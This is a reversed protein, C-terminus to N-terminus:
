IWGEPDTPDDETDRYGIIDVATIPLLIGTPASVFEFTCQLRLTAEYIVESTGWPTGPSSGYGGMEIQEWLPQLAVLSNEQIRRRFAMGTSSSDTFALVKIVEDHLRARELSSLAVVTYSLSGEGRWRRAFGVQDKDDKDTYEVHGIGVNTIKPSPEFDTWIGPYGAKKEPYEISVTLNRFDQETYTQNFVEEMANNAIAMIEALFM